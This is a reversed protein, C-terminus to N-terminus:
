RLSSRALEGAAPDAAADLDLGVALARRRVELALAADDIRRWARKAAVVDGASLARAGEVLELLDKAKSRRAENDALAFARRAQAEADDLDHVRIAEVARTMERQYALADTSPGAAQSAHCGALFIASLALAVLGRSSAAGPKSRVLSRCPFTRTM